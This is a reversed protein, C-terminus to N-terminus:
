ILQVCLLLRFREQSVVSIIKGTVKNNAIIYLGNNKLASMSETMKESCGRKGLQNHLPRASLLAHVGFKLLEGAPASAKHEPHDTLIEEIMFSRYRHTRHDPHVDPPYYHAGMDLHHQM